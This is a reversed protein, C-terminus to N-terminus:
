GTQSKIHDIVVNFEKSPSFGVNACEEVAEPVHGPGRHFVQGAECIEDGAKTRMGLRGNSRTVGTPGQCLDDPLGVLVPAVKVGQPLRVFAASM